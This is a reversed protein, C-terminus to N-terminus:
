REKRTAAVSDVREATSETDSKNLAAIQRRDELVRDIDAKRKEARKDERKAAEEAAEVDITKATKHMAVLPKENEPLKRVDRDEEMIATDEEGRSWSLPNWWSWTGKRLRAERVKEVLVKEDELDPDLRSRLGELELELQKLRDAVDDRRSSEKRRSWWREVLLLGVAVSFIFAESFFNAGLEIARAESLPKIRPRTSVKDEKTKGDKADQEEKAREADYKLQEEENRVIPTEAKRKKDEAAKLERDHMRQQAEPDHLIGLRM